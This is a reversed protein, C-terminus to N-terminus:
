KATAAVSWAVGIAYPGSFRFFVKYKEGDIYVYGKHLDDPDNKRIMGVDDLKKGIKDTDTAGYIEGTKRNAVFIKMGEYSPMRSVVESIENQKLEQLLCIPAIGVQVLRTGAEDWTMAYMMKKRESANPMVDQCLALSPNTLMPKFFALQEGSDFHYGWYKPITGSYLVGKTNFLHIEDVSVLVAIKNLEQVNYEVEPKADIIYAVTKARVIYDEKLSDILAKENQENSEIVNVIRDLLLLSTNDFNRNNITNLIILQIGLAMAIVFSVVGIVTYLKRNKGYIKKIENKM